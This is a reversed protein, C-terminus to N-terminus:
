YLAIEAKARRIRTKEHDSDIVLANTATEGAQDYDNLRLYCEAQNSLVNVVEKVQNTPAVYLHECIVVDLADDYKDLAEKFKKAAFLQNAEKKKAILELMDLQALRTIHVIPPHIKDSVIRRIVGSALHLSRNRLSHAVM